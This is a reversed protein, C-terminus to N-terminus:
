GATKTLPNRWRLAPFRGFDSDNSAIEADNELALAALQIDTTLNGATGIERLLGFAIELHRPGPVVFVATPRDLWGAVYGTADAATMPAVLVRPSTATRLFGFIAPPSLGVDESGNLTEQWWARATEHQPFGSVTAYLLLNVDVVIM